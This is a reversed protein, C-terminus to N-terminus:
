GPPSQCARWGARHLRGRPVGLRDILDLLQVPAFFGQVSVVVGAPHGAAEHLGVGAERLVLGLPQRLVPGPGIGLAPPFDQAVRGVLHGAGLKRTSSVSAKYARM